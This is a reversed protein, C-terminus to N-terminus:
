AAPPRTTDLDLAAPRCTQPLKRGEALTPQESIEIIETLLSDSQSKGSHREYRCAAISGAPCMVGHSRRKCTFRCIKMDAMHLTGSEIHSVTAGSASWRM